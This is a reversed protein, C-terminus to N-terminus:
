KQNIRKIDKKMLDWTETQYFDKGCSKIRQMIKEQYAPNAKDRAQTIEELLFEFENYCSDPLHQNHVFLWCQKDNNLVKTGLSSSDGPFKLLTFIAIGKMISTIGITHNDSSKWTRGGISHKLELQSRHFKELISNHNDTSFYNDIFYIHNEIYPLQTNEGNLFLRMEETSEKLCKIENQTLSDEQFNVDVLLRRWNVSTIFYFLRKDILIFDVGQQEPYFIHESFWKEYLSFKEECEKCLLYEKEIDQVPKYPNSIKVMKQTASSKKLNRGIFKPIIHSKQLNGYKKCLACYGESNKM